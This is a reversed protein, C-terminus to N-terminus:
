SAGAKAGARDQEHTPDAALDHGGLPTEAGDLLVAATGDPRPRSPDLALRGEALATLVWRLVPRDSHAKQRREHADVDERSPPRPGHYELAPGRALVPGGDHTDDVLFTSTRTATDGRRLAVGVPDMGVLARAGSGDLSALDGPHQNIIRDRFHALFGGHIWRHYALVVLDIEGDAREFERVRALLRDHFAEARARYAARDEETVCARHNGCEAAFRGPWTPVGARAAVDLAGARERDSAVLVVRLLDPREAALELTTTLNAGTASVLAMVRLPRPRGDLLPAATM